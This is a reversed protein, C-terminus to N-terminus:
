NDLAAYEERYLEDSNDVTDFQHIHHIDCYHPCIEKKSQMDDFINMGGFIIIGFILNLFHDSFPIIINHM